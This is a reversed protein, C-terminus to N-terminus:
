VQTESTDAQKCKNKPLLEIFILNFSNIDLAKARWPIVWHIFIPVSFAFGANCIPQQRQYCDALLINWSFIWVAIKAM